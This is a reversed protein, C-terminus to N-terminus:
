LELEVKVKSTKYPGNGRSELQIEKVIGVKGAVDFYVKEVIWGLPLGVIHVWFDYRSFDYCHESIDLECQKLVLLNSAFSWPGLKLVREKEEGFEFVFSFLGPEKQSCEMTESKWAKKM